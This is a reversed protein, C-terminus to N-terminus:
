SEETVFNPYATASHEAFDLGDEQEHSDARMGITKDILFFMVYCIGFAAFAITFTGIAQVGLTASSSGDNFLAVCLTGWIGNFLHVPIAGVVDDLKLKLLLLAGFTGIVGAFAGIIIASGPTVNACCATIAVLGGLIGNLLSTLEPKGDYAWFSLMGAIGAVAGALITNVLIRGVEPSAELTSGGNFGFWGFMLILTGLAVFPMNHGAILRPSGDDNFRGDRPGIIMIGALAAAGGVAHVVSSGAFDVFGMAELWGQSGGFGEELDSALSGWAWHGLLPYTIASLIVTHVLYGLFKTREAMAGSAITAATAVFVSQFFWFVWLRSDAALDSLNIFNTSFWGNSAGFMICFGVIFFALTAVSFDVVNKMVVNLCNKSRVMGLELMCFGVQMLFVLAAAVIVWLLDVPRSLPGTVLLEAANEITEPAADVTPTGLKQDLKSEVRELTELITDVKSEQTQSFGMSALAFFLAFLYRHFM